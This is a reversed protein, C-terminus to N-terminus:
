MNSLGSYLRHVDGNLNDIVMQRNMGRGRLMQAQRVKQEFSTHHPILEGPHAERTYIFLFHVRDAYDKELHEM